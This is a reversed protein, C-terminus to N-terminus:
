KGNSTNTIRKRNIALAQRIHELEKEKRKMNLKRELVKESIIYWRAKSQVLKEGTEELFITAQSYLRKNKRRTTRAEVIVKTELSVAKFYQINLYDTMVFFGLHHCLVGQAEDLVTAIAGGHAYGPAGETNKHFTYTFRVRKEKAIFTSPVQLNHPNKEGCGFCHDHHIDPGIYTGRESIPLSRKDKPIQNKM